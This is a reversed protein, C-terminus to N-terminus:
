GTSRTEARFETQETVSFRGGQIKQLKGTRLLQGFSRLGDERSYDDEQVERLKSMLMPRSFQPRGEVDSIYAAAAELIDTLETAGIQHIFSSFNDTSEESTHEIDTAQSSNKDVDVRQEAVLKLPAPRDFSHESKTTEPARKDGLVVNDLTQRYPKEDAGLPPEAGATKDARAAAVAARLYRIANRRKNSDNELLQDDAQNFIRSVNTRRHPRQSDPLDTESTPQVAAILKADDSEETDFSSVDPIMGLERDLDTKVKALERQLDAEEEQSLDSVDAAAYEEADSEGFLMQDVLEEEDQPLADEGDSTANPELETEVSTSDTLDKSEEAEDDSNTDADEQLQEVADHSLEDSEHSDVYEEIKKIEHSLDDTAFAAALDNSSLIATENEEQPEIQLDTNAETEDDAALAATLDAATSALFDQAHEDEVYDGEDELQQTNSVVSRLRRLKFVVSDSDPQVQETATVQAPAATAVPQPADYSDSPITATLDAQPQTMSQINDPAYEPELTAPIADSATEAEDANHDANEQERIDLEPKPLERTSFRALMEADPTAPEAGFYRDDAALDRFYEAIEKMTEFSDDFGELTCSFTGYSVTLIKSSNVM